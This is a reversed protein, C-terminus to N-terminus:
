IKSKEKLWEEFARLSEEGDVVFVAGGSCSIADIQLAQFGTPTKGPAKVEVGFFAGCFHGIIDPVGKVAYQSQVPMFYWGAASKFAGAKAAPQIDYKDLLKKTLDKIRGEPTAM